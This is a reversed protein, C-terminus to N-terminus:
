EDEYWVRTINTFNYNGKETFKHSYVKGRMNRLHIWTFPCMVKTTTREGSKTSFTDILNGRITVEISDVFRKVKQSSRQKTDIPQGDKDYAINEKQYNKM